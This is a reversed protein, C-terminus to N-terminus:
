ALRPTGGYLSRARGEFCGILRAVALNFNAHLLVDLMRALTAVITSPATM